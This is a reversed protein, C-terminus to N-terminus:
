YSWVWPRTDIELDDLHIFRHEGRQNVGIGTMGVRLACEMLKYAQEGRVALDIAHGTTHPGTAGTHSVAMNHAPCRYGSTVIFPFGLERRMAVVKAMFTNKMHMEGCHKCQLEENTFYQWQSTM